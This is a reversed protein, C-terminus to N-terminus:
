RRPLSTLQALYNNPLKPFNFYTLIELPTPTSEQPSPHSATSAGHQSIHIKAYRPTTLTTIALPHPPYPESPYTPTDTTPYQRTNFSTNATSHIHTTHQRLSSTAISPRSPFPSIHSILQLPTTSTTSLNIIQPTQTILIKLLYTRMYELLAPNNTNHWSFTLPSDHHLYIMAITLVIVDYNYTDGQHNTISHTHIMPSRTIGTDQTNNNSNFTVLRKEM